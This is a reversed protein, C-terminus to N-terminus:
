LRATPPELGGAGVLEFRQDPSQLTQAVLLFSRRTGCVPRLGIPAYRMSATPWGVDLSPFLHGYTNLTMTISAHGLRAQIAKPHAGEAIEIRRELLHLHTIRLASAEGFRLGAYAGLLVLARYRPDFADALAEVEEVTLIRIARRETKPTRVRAAPNAPILGDELAQRLIRSATQHVLQVTRSGVGRDTLDAVLQRLEAPRISAIPTHILPRLYLRFETEYTARTSPALGCDGGPRESDEAWKIALPQPRPV